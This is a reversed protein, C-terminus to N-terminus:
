QEDMRNDFEDAERLLKEDRAMRAEFDAELLRRKELAKETSRISQYWNSGYRVEEGKKLLDIIEERTLTRYTEETNYKVCLELHYSSDESKIWSGNSLMRDLQILEQKDM